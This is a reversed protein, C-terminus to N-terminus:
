TPGGGRKFAGPPLQWEEGDALLVGQRYDCM